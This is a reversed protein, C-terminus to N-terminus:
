IKLAENMHKVYYKYKPNTYFDKREILSIVNKQAELILKYDQKLDLFKFVIFGSQLTGIFDGPGRTKLDFESLLFGDNTQTLYKLREKDETESVLYCVSELNSRGVRGRLQHLQSLGFREAQFIVILTATPIDIGVEIMQTALLITGPTKYFNNINNENEEKTKQGHVVFVKNQYRPILIDEITNINDKFKDSTIAPVVVYVHEKKNITQDIKILIDDIDNRNIIETKIPKRMLPKEQILSVHQHGFIVTALTRPIPTATLYIIDKSEAKDVLKQRATVGFKHQEDVIILGLNKFIVDEEIIAHTGIILHHEQNKIEAKIQEKNKTSSTLKIVSFNKIYKKFFQYHQNALLETPAMFAVQEGATLVAYSAILSVITKGSGVDGQILRYSAQPKKFDKFIDNTANKQDKTLEYPIEQILALVKNLDYEKPKRFILNPLEKQWKLQLFFAEEYKLTRRALFIDEVNKPLHLRYYAEKRNLLHYKNKDEKPILEIIKSLDNNFIQTILKSILADNVGDINYIPKIDRKLEQKIVDSATIKNYFLDYIGKVIVKDGKNLTNILYPRGFVVTEIINNEINLKFTVMKTKSYRNITLNSHIIGEVTINEKHNVDNLNM